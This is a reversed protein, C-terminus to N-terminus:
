KAPPLEQTKLHKSCKACAGVWPRLKQSNHRPARERAPDKQVCSNAWSERPMHPLGASHCVDLHLWRNGKQKNTRKKMKATSTTQFWLFAHEKKDKRHQNKKSVMNCDSTVDRQIISMSATSTVAQHAGPITNDSRQVRMTVHHSLWATSLGRAYGGHPCIKDLPPALSIRQEEIQTPEWGLVSQLIHHNKRPKWSIELKNQIQNTKTTAPLKGVLIM